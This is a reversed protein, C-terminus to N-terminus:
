GQNPSIGVLRKLGDRAQVVLTAAFGGVWGVFAGLWPGALYVVVGVALGVGFATCVRRKNHAAISWCRHLFLKCGAFARLCHCGADRLYGLGCLLGGWVRPLLGKRREGPQPAADQPTTTAATGGMTQAMVARLDANTFM